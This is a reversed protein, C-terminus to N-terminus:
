LTIDFWELLELPDSAQRLKRELKSTNQTRYQKMRKFLMDFQSQYRGAAACDSEAELSTLLYPILTSQYAKILRPKVQDQMTTATFPNWVQETYLAELSDARAPLQALTAALSQLQILCNLSAEALSTKKELAEEESYQRLSSSALAKLHLLAPLYPETLTHSLSDIWQNLLDTERLMQAELVEIEEWQVQDTLKSVLQKELWNISSYAYQSMRTLYSLSTETNELTDPAPGIFTNPGTQGELRINFDLPEDLDLLETLRPRDVFPLLGAKAIDQTQRLPQVWNQSIEETSALWFDVEPDAHKLINLRTSRLLSESIEEMKQLEEAMRLMQTEEETNLPYHNVKVKFVPWVTKIGLEQLDRFIDEATALYGAQAKLLAHMSGGLEQYRLSDFRGQLALIRFYNGDLSVTTQQDQILPYVELTDSFQGGQIIMKELRGERFYWEERRDLDQLHDMEWVDHAFGGKLFRGLMVQEQDKLQIKGQPTGEVLTFQSQFLPYKVRSAQLPIVQHQWSGSAQGSQFSFEFQQETGSLPIQLAHDKLTAPGGQSFDGLIISWSSDPAKNLLHGEISLFRDGKDVLTPLDLSQFSFTQHILSDGQTSFDSQSVFGEFGNISALQGTVGNNQGAVQIWGVGLVLFFLCAVVKSNDM